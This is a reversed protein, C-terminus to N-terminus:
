NHFLRHKRWAFMSMAIDRMKLMLITKMGQKHSLKHPNQMEFHYSLITRSRPQSTVLTQFRHMLLDGGEGNKAIQIWMETVISFTKLIDNMRCLKETCDTQDLEYKAQMGSLSPSAADQIESVHVEQVIIIVLCIKGVLTIMSSVFTRKDAFINNFLVYLTVTNDNIYSRLVLM